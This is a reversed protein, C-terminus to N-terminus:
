YFKPTWPGNPWIFNSQRTDGWSLNIARYFIRNLKVNVVIGQSDIAKENEVFEEDFIEAYKTNRLDQVNPFTAHTGKAILVKPKNKTLASIKYRTAYEFDVWLGGEHQSYYVSNKEFPVNNNDLYIKIHEWDGEHVGGSTSDPPDNYPLFFWYELVKAAQGSFDGKYVSAYVETIDHGYKTEEEIIKLFFFENQSDKKPNDTSSVTKNVNVLQLNCLDFYSFEYNINRILDNENILDEDVVVEYDDHCVLRDIYRLETDIIYNNVNGLRYQDDKSLYIIPAYMKMLEDELQDSLGDGDNDVKSYCKENMEVENAKCKPEIEVGGICIKQNNEFNQCERGTPGEKYRDSTPFGYVGWTGGNKNHIEKIEGWVSYTGHKSQYIYGNAFSQYNGSTGYSSTGAKEMRQAQPKTTSLITLIGMVGVVTLLKLIRHAKIKKNEKM